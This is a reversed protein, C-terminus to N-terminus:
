YSYTIEKKPYGYIDTYIWCEEGSRSYKRIYKTTYHSYDIPERYEYVLSDGNYTYYSDGNYLSVSSAPVEKAVHTTSNKYLPVNSRIVQTAIFKANIKGDAFLATPESNGSLEDQQTIIM